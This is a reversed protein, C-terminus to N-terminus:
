GPNTPRMRDLLRPCRRAIHLLLKEANEQFSTHEHQRAYEEWNKTDLLL